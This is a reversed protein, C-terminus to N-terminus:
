SKAIVAESSSTRSSMRRWISIFVRMASSPSVPSHPAPMPLTSSAEPSSRGVRMFAIAAAPESARMPPQAIGTTMFEPLPFWPSVTESGTM